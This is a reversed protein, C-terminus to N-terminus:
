NYELVLSVGTSIVVIGNDFRLGEDGYNIPQIPDYQTAEGGEVKVTTSTISTPVSASDIIAYVGSSSSAYGGIRYLTAGGTVVQTGGNSATVCKTKHTITRTEDARLDSFLFSIGVLAMLVLILMKRM